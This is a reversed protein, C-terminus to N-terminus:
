DPNVSEIGGDQPLSDFLTVSYWAMGGPYTRNFPKNLIDLFVTQPQMDKQQPFDNTNQNFDWVGNGIADWNTYATEGGNDMHQENYFSEGQQDTYTSSYNGAIKELPRTIRVICAKRKEQEQLMEITKGDDSQDGRPRSTFKYPWRWNENAPNSVADYTVPLPSYPEGSQPNPNSWDTKPKNSDLKNLDRFGKSYELLTENEGLEKQEIQEQETDSASEVEKKSFPKRIMNWIQKWFDSSRPKGVTCPAYYTQEDSVSDPELPIELDSDPTWKNDPANVLSPLFAANKDIKELVFGGDKENGISFYTKNGVAPSFVVTDLEIERGEFETSGIFDKGLGKKVYALTIHPHYEDSVLGKACELKECVEKNMHELDESVVEVTVVDFEAYEVDPEFHKVKGLKGKFPKHDNFIRRATKPNDDVLGYKITIHVELERGFKDEDIYLADDPINKVGFEVIEQALEHPVLAMLCGYEGMKVKKTQATIEKKSFVKAIVPQRLARNVQKQIFPFPDNVKIYNGELDDIEIGNGTYHQAIFNDLYNPLRKLDQVEIAFDSGESTEQGSTIRTWGDAILQDAMSQIEDLSKIQPFKQKIFGYHGGTGSIDYEKGSPDIWYKIGLAAVIRLSAKKEPKGIENVIEKWNNKFQIARDDVLVQYLPKGIFISDYTLNNKDLFEKVNDEDVNSRYSYVVINWGNQKLTNLAEKAGEMLNGISGDENETALTDDLDIYCQGLAPNDQSTPKVQAKKMFSAFKSMSSTKNFREVLQRARLWGISSLNIVGAGGYNDSTTPIGIADMVSYHDLDYADWIYLDGEPSGFYRMVGNKAKRYIDEALDPSPNKYVRVEEGKPTHLRIVDGAIKSISATQLRKHSLAKNVAKQIGEEIADEYQVVVSSDGGNMFRYSSVLIKPHGSGVAIIFNDIYSPLAHLDEVEVNIYSGQTSARIWDSDGPPGDPFKKTMWQSHEGHPEFPYIKGDPSIWYKKDSALKNVSGESIIKEILPLEETTVEGGTSELLEKLNQLIAFFGHRALYKFLIENESTPDQNSHRYDVLDQKIKLDKKIEEEIDNLKKEIKTYFLKQKDKGWAKIVNELEDIRQIDRKVKGLSGDLEQALAEAEEVVQRKSEEIDLEAPFFIPDKLWEDKYLSYVGVAETNSPHLEISEIYFETPHQTMPALIKARDFEKRTEDLKAFAAEKSANPMNTKIFEDLNVRVHVDMDSTLLWKATTLSGLIVVDDVWKEYDKLSYTEYMKDLLRLIFDRQYAYFRMDQDWVAPDLFPYSFDLISSSKTLM